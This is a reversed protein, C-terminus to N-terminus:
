SLYADVVAKSKRLEAMTGDALVAGQAMVIVRNCTRAVFSLEHEVLLMTIGKEALALLHTGMEVARTPNIGAIPEDLILLQPNTMLARSLEVMRKEGGSLLGAYTDGYKELGYECLLSYALEVGDNEDARWAKPRVFVQSLRDGYSRPRGVLLNEMVTLRNFLNVRQFTRTIGLRAVRNVSLGTTRQDLFTIQGRDPKLSGCILNILTSKGAGNPGILGVIGGRPVDFTAANVAQVGGFSLSVDSVTLFGSSVEPETRTYM